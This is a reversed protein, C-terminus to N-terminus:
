QQEMQCPRAETVPGAEIPIWDSLPHCEKGELCLDYDRTYTSRSWRLERFWQEAPKYSWVGDKYIAGEPPEMGAGSGRVRTRELYVWEGAIRYDEDWLIKEISHQWRLTFREGPIV